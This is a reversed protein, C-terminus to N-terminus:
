KEELAKKIEQWQLINQLNEWVSEPDYKMQAVHLESCRNSKGKYLYQCNQQIVRSVNNIATIIERKYRASKDTELLIEIPQNEILSESLEKKAMYVEEPMDVKHNKLTKEVDKLVVEVLDHVDSDKLTSLAEQAQVSAIGLFMWIITYKM